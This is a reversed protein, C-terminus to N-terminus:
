PVRPVDDILSLWEDLRERNKGMDSYGMHAAAYFVVTSTQGEMPVVWVHNVDAFRLRPSFTLARAYLGVPDREVWTVAGEEQIADILRAFLAPAPIAYVPTEADPQVPLLDAPGLLADNPRGTREITEIVLPGSDPDGAVTEWVRQPGIVFLAAAALGALIVLGIAARMLM